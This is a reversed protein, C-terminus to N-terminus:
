NEAPKVEIEKLRARFTQMAAKMPELKDKDRALDKLEGPDTALDFLQYQAGGLHLLKTGPTPGAILARRTGNFPGIPMDIFVDREESPATGEVESMLSQGSMEGEPVDIGMLEALTPALDIHSRKMAVRRPEVGPVYIVLPVRVLSEWLESGHWSMAHDGLAEGHDATLVIATDKAWPAREIADLVRGLHQDTYWVEADYQAHVWAAPGKEGEGFKPADPHPAYQAHPDFYHFWAFFPKQDSDIGAEPLGAKPAGADNSPGRSATGSPDELLKLIVNSLAESSVSNDNDALGPPIASLDWRDFGQSLGSFPKFYFHSMAGFTAYGADHAREAVLINKPAYVNFHGGDRLTESPYKGILLPGLSKGTYSAMAYARDFVVSKKALRDMNPSVPKPYGMFGLDIRLTDITVLVVNLRRKKKPAAPQVVPEKAKPAPTDAGSCDEDLGNGPVDIAEPYRTKDHDDCDGGGYLPSAGDKDRDTVKRLLGLGIKGLSAYRGLGRSLEAERNFYSADRVCATLGLLVFFLAVSPAGIRSRRGVVPLVYALAALLLAYGVPTLDLESRKLVGLIAFPNAGDGSTNGSIVGYAFLGVVPVFSLAVTAVPDVLWPLREAAAALARRLPPALALVGAALTVVLALTFAGLLVGSEAPKGESLRSKGMHAGLVVLLFTAFVVLPAIAATRSRALVPASQVTHLLESPSSLERPEFFFSAAAVALGVLLALPFLLGLDALFLAGAPPLEPDMSGARRAELVAVLISGLAGGGLCLFLRRVIGSLV